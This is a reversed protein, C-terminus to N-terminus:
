PRRTPQRAETTKKIWEGITRAVEPSVQADALSSYEAPDGTKAPVLLHNVGPITALEVPPANKRARALEGLREAHSSPIEADLAGRVILLPQRVRALARAPDFSLYSRFWPTEASARLDPPVTDWGQGGTVAAIIRKQLDIREQRETDSLSLHALERQQRELVYEAGTTGATAVLVVARIDDDKAAATLAV